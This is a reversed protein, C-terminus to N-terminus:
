IFQTLNFIYYPITNDYRFYIINHVQKDDKLVKTSLNRDILKMCLICM